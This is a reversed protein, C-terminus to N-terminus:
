ECLFLQIPDGVQAQLQLQASGCNISLELYGHSGVLGIADGKPVDGYTMQGAYAVQHFQLQWPHGQVLSAPFNTILNGFHDIAQISGHYTNRSPQSLPFQLQVITAPDISTGLASIPVGQALYAAAPAFIDRGHFTSSPRASRWYDPNTLEVAQVILDQQLIGSLLGNDPAVFYAHTTQVAIARRQGGVGPDVIAVHVTGQPFYPYAMLGQFRAAAIDQPPVGHTLDVITAEPLIGLIVGKLIGVYSDQLGFDSLLTLLHM